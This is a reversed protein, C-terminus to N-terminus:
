ELIDANVPHFPLVLHKMFDFLVQKKCQIRLQISVSIWSPDQDTQNEGANPVSQEDPILQEKVTHKCEPDAM